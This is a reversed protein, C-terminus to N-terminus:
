YEVMCAITNTEKCEPIEEWSYRVASRRPHASCATATSPGASTSAPTTTADDDTSDGEFEQAAIDEECESSSCSEVESHMDDWVELVQGIDM